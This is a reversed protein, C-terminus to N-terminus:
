CREAPAGGGGGGDMGADDIFNFAVFSLPYFSPPVPFVRCNNTFVPSPLIADPPFPPLVFSPSSTPLPGPHHQQRFQSQCATEQPFPLFVHSSIPLTLNPSRSFSVLAIFHHFPHYNRQKKPTKVLICKKFRGTKAGRRVQLSPFETLIARIGAEEELLNDSLNIEEVRMGGERGEEKRGAKLAELLTVLGHDNLQAQPISLTRLSPSLALLRGLLSPSPTGEELGIDELTLKNLTCLFSNEKENRFLAKTEGEGGFALDLLAGLLHDDGLPLCSPTPPHATFQEDEIKLQNSLRRYRNGRIHLTCLSSLYPAYRLFLAFSSSSLTFSHLAGAM